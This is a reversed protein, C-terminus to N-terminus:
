EIIPLHEQLGTLDILRRLQPSPSRLTVAGSQLAILLTRLGRSDVFSVGATDLVVDAAGGERLGDIANQVLDATSLDLEGVLVLENPQAGPEVTLAEDVAASYMAGHSQGDFDGLHAIRVQHATIHGDIHWLKPIVEGSWGDAGSGAAFGSTVLGSRDSVRRRNMAPPAATAPAATTPLARAAHLESSSEDDADVVVGDVVVSGAVVSAAVVSGAVVSGATVVAVVAAGAVEASAVVDVAAVVVVTAAGAPLRLSM